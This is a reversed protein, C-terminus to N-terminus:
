RRCRADGTAACRAADLAASRMADCRRGDRRALTRLADDPVTACRAGSTTTAAARHRMRRLSSRGTRGDRRSSGVLRRGTAATGAGVSRDGETTCSRGPPASSPARGCRRLQGRLAARTGDGLPWDCACRRDRRATAFTAGRARDGAPAARHARAAARPLRPLLALWRTATADRARALRAQQRRVYRPDNPDPIASARQRIASGRSARSSTAGATADGGRALEGGFDCFFLFPTRAGFEEGMFLMPSRRRSCCAARDRRAAGRDRSRPSGSASRATASRTTTRCSTSSRPRRCTRARSAARSARASRRRSARTPSARPSRARRAAARARGRLRRLLRRERRDAARAARPPLRREVARHRVPAAGTTACGALAGRQPRERARPARPARTRSRARVTAALETSSTPSAFRRRDRAGRRPAPRRLPYEELWYLANHVFFDRVTRAARATSTSRRAGRRTTGRPSSSRRTRTCITAKPASTTTSSTSCCWSGARTRTRRRAAESRRAHRVGRRARVAARRRLGLQARRSLGRGADARDRHRRPRALYDLRERSAPSRARPRSRASTCSTSSRKTGRGAAGTTTPGNSRARISSRARRRARRRSQLAVGSRARRADGDIRYRYRRAPARGTPARSSGATASARLPVIPAAVDAGVDCSSASRAPAWLRFRTGGDTRMQAGFPMRAARRMPSSPQQQLLALSRGQSRSLPRRSDLPPEGRTSATTAATDLLLEGARGAAIAAAHVSRSTTRTSSCWSTTTSSRGAASTPRPRPRRRRPLVGLCRAVGDSGSRARDDRRRRAQAVRHGEGDGGRM